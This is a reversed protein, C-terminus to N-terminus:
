HSTPDVTRCLALYESVPILRQGHGVLALRIHLVQERMWSVENL